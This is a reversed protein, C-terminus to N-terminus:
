FVNCMREQFHWPLVALLMALYTKQLLCEGNSSWLPWVPSPGLFPLKRGWLLMEPKPPYILDTSIHSRQTLDFHGLRKKSKKVALLETWSSWLPWTSKQIKWQWFARNSWLQWTAKEIFSVYGHKLFGLFTTATVQTNKCTCSCDICWIKWCVYTYVASFCHETSLVILHSPLHSLLYM